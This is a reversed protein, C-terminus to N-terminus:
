SRELPASTRQPLSKRGGSGPAITRWRALTHLALTILNRRPRPPLAAVRRWEAAERLLDEHREKALSGDELNWM